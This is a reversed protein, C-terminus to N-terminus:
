LKIILSSLGQIKHKDQLVSGDIEDVLNENKDARCAIEEM